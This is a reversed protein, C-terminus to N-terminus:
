EVALLGVCCARNSPGEIRQEPMTKKCRVFPKYAIPLGAPTCGIAYAHSLSFRPLRHLIKSADGDHLNCLFNFRVDSRSFIRSAVADDFGPMLGCAPGLACAPMMPDAAQLTGNRSLGDSLLTRKAEHSALSIARLPSSKANAPGLRMREQLGDATPVGTSACVSRRCCCERSCCSRVRNRPTSSRNSRRHDSSGPRSRSPTSNPMRRAAQVTSDRERRTQLSGRVGGVFFGGRHSV